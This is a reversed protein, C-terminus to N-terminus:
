VFFLGCEYMPMSRSLSVRDKDISPEAAFKKALNKLLLLFDYIQSSHVSFSNEGYLFKGQKLYVEGITLSGAGVSICCNKDYSLSLVNNSPGSM